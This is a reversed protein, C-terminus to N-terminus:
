FKKVERALKKPSPKGSPAYRLCDGLRKEQGCMKRRTGDRMKEKGKTFYKEGGKKRVSSSTGEASRLNSGKGKEIKSLRTEGLEQHIRKERLWLL